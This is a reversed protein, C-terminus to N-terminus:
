DSDLCLLLLLIQKVELNCTIDREIKKFWTGMEQRWVRWMLTQHLFFTQYLSHYLIHKATNKDASEKLWFSSPIITLMSRSTFFATHLKMCLFYSFLSLVARAFMVWQMKQIEEMFTKEQSFHLWSSYDIFHLSYSFLWHRLLTEVNLNQKKLTILHLHLLLLLITQYCCCHEALLPVYLVVKLCRLPLTQKELANGKLDGEKPYYRCQKPM